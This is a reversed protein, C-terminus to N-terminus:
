GRAGPPPAASFGIVLDVEDGPVETALRELLQEADVADGPNWDEVRLLDLEVGFRAALQDSASDIVEGVRDRYGAVSRFRADARAVVRLRHM